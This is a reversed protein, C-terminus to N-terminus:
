NEELIYGTCDALVLGAGPSITVLKRCCQCCCQKYFLACDINFTIVASVQCLSCSVAGVKPFNNGGDIQIDGM